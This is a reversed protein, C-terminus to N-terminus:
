IQHLDNHQIQKHLAMEETMARQAHYEQMLEAKRQMMSPSLSKNENEKNFGPDQQQQRPVYGDMSQYVPPPPGM